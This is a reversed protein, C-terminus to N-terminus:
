LFLNTIEGELHGIPRIGDRERDDVNSDTGGCATMVIFTILLVFAKAYFRM